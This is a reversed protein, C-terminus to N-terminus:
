CNFRQKHKPIVAPRVGIELKGIMLALGRGDQRGIVLHVPVAPMGDPDEALDGPLSVVEVQEAIGTLQAGLIQEDNACRQLSGM